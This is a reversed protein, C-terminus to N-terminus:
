TGRCFTGHRGDGLPKEPFTGDHKSDSVFFFPRFDGPADGRRQRRAGGPGGDAQGAPKAPLRRAVSSRFGKAFLAKRLVLEPKTNKSRIKSMCESRKNKDWIDM